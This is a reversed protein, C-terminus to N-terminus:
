KSLIKNIMGMLKERNVPKSVFAECGAAYAEKEDNTSVFATLAIIPLDPLIKKIERTATFGSVIPMKMDMLILNIASNKRCTDIAIQGNEARLVTFAARKLIVEVYKYNFDDDDAVLVVPNKIAAPQLAGPVLDPVKSTIVKGPLTFFFSSGKNKTSEVHITGGILKLLGGAISLGLGSGEYGRTRSTDAQTFYEFIAQTMSSDIGVGTDTVFFEVLGPKMDVGITISGQQTFKVANDVLHSLIKRVFVQDTNFQLDALPEPVKILLEINKASCAEIFENEIIKMLNSLPFTNNHVVMNGSVILSIDLYNDITNLLRKSSKQIIENFHEKEEEKIEPNSLLESFGVIGNLPTRVEHSINNIFASKLKEGAEAKDKAAILDEVMRRKETVDEMIGVLHTIQGAENLLPSIMANEWYKEGNKKVNLMEGIWERGSLVTEWLDKYFEDPQNGSKLLNPKNGIVEDFSYGTTEIFKPNVYEIKGAIDTIIILAPNQEIARSLVSLKEQAEKNIKLIAKKEIAAKLAQGLRTLNGKLIYDDAGAKMCEVATEENNSGTVLIFPVQPAIEDRLKLAQMGDFSPLAFDSLIIDPVFEHLAKIYDKRTEVVESSFHFGKKGIERKVLEADLPLDEVMLIKIHAEMDIIM